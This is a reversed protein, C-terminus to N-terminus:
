NVTGIITNKRGTSNMTMMPGASIRTKLHFQRGPSITAADLRCYRLPVCILVARSPAGRVSGQTRSERM